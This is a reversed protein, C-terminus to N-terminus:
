RKWEVLLWALTGGILGAGLLDFEPVVLHLLPGLVAGAVIAAVDAQVRVAKLLALGFYVPLSFLLAASATPPLVTSLQYGVLSGSIMVMSFGAGLGIFRPLRLSPNLPPIQRLAELWPTVAVFHVALVKVWPSAPDGRFYPVIAVTMPLLRIATLSVAFGAALLTAGRSVEDVFLVQAPLANLIGALLLAQGLTADADRALAGFGLSTGFLVVAPICFLSHLFGHALAQRRASRSVPPVSALDVIAPAPIGGGEGRSSDPDASRKENQM